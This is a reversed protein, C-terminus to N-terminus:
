SSPDSLYRVKSDFHEVGTIKGGSVKTVNELASWLFLGVNSKKVADVIRKGDAVEKDLSLSSWFDTVGQRLHLFVDPCDSAKKTALLSAEKTALTSSM